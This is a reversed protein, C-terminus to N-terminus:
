ETYDSLKAQVAEKRPPFNPVFDNLTTQTFNPEARKSQMSNTSDALPKHVNGVQQPEGM